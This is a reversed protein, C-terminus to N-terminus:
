VVMKVSAWSELMMNWSCCMMPAMRLHSSSLLTQGLIDKIISLSQPSHSTVLSFACSCLVQRVGGRLLRHRQLRGASGEGQLRTGVAGGPCGLARRALAGAGPAACRPAAAPGPGPECRRERTAVWSLRGADRARGRWADGEARLSSSCGPGPEFDGRLKTFVHSSHTPAYRPCPASASLRGAARGGGGGLAAAATTAAERTCM